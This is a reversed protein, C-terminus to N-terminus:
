GQTDGGATTTLASLEEERAVVMMAAHVLGACLDDHELDDRRLIQELVAYDKPELTGGGSISFLMDINELLDLTIAARPHSPILATFMPPTYEEEEENNNNKNPTDGTSYHSSASPTTKYIDQFLEDIDSPTPSDSSVKDDDTQLDLRAKKTPRQPTLPPPPAM